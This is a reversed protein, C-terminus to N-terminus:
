HLTRFTNWGGTGILERPAYPANTRGRDFAYYAYLRGSTDRAVLDATGDGNLDGTGQVATYVQWGGGVRARPTVGGTPTGFYVWLVGSADIGLLDGRGDGDLDGAGTIRKYLKWNTGIRVRPALRHGATGAYFYMDGTTTQRAILDQHGDANVDGPPTLVDYQAWGFGIATYPSSGTVVKGCGPRYARLENGVRGLVDACSDGNVDGFPVLLTGAPFAAGTATTRASLGGLGNGRYLSVAGSTNVGLLEGQADSGVLDRFAPRSGSVTIRGSAYLDRGNGDATLARVVWAYPGNPAPLGAANKGDWTVDIRERTETGRFTRLPKFNYADIVNVEYQSAPKSLTWSAKWTGPMRLGAPTSAAAIKLDSTPVGTWVVHVRQDAGRYAVAGGFRDVTWTVRREGSVTEARTLDFPTGAKGTHFPTVRLYSGSSQDVFYGDGLLGGRYAGAPLAIRVPAAPNRLDLVGQKEYRACAWYLWRGATQLETLPCGAGTAVTSLAGGGALDKRAVDGASGTGTYLTDGWVAAATQAQRSVTKQGDLDLVLTEGGVVLEGPRGPTGTQFVTWRGFTDAIRGDRDVAVRTTRGANAGTTGRSVVARATGPIRPFSVVRGDGGDLLPPESAEAGTEAGAWAAASQGTHLPGASLTRSYFGAGKPGDHELTTLRGMGLALSEVEAPLPAVPRLKELAPAAGGKGPVAKFVAWDTASTGGTVAVGSGDAIQTIEQQAGALLTQRVGAPSVAVLRRTLAGGATASETTTLLWDGVLGIRAADLGAPLPYTTGPADLDARQRIHVNRDPDVWAIREATVAVGAVLVGDAATTAAATPAALVRMRGTALDVLGLLSDRDAGSTGVTFRLVAVGEAGAVLRAGHLDAGVPWGTVPVSAGNPASAARLFYGGTSGSSTGPVYQQFLLRDGVLGRYSADQPITLATTTGTELDLVGHAGPNPAVYAYRGGTGFRAFSAIGDGLSRSTGSALDTWEVGAGSGETRHAYGGAGAALVIEARPEARWSPEVDLQDIGVVPTGPAAVAGPALGAGTVALVAALLVARTRGRRAPATRSM